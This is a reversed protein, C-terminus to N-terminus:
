RVSSPLRQVRDRLRRLTAAAEEPDFNDGLDLVAAALFDEIVVAHSTDTLLGIFRSNRSFAFDGRSASFDAFLQGLAPRDMKLFRNTETLRRFETSGFNSEDEKVLVAEEWREPSRALEFTELGANEVTQEPLPLFLIRPDSNLFGVQRVPVTKDGLRVELEVAEIGGPNGSLSFPTNAAHAVLYTGDDGSVLISTSEYNKRTPRGLFGKEETTFRLRARNNQFRTFIESMTRPRSDEIEQKLSESTRAIADMDQDLRTFGEGIRTVGRGLETVGESLRDARAFAQEKEAQLREKERGEEELRRNLQERETRAEALERNLKEREAAMRKAEERAKRLAKEREALMQEREQLEEETQSLQERSRTATERLEGLDRALDAREATARQLEGRTAEVEEALKRRKAEIRAKEEALQEKEEETTATTNELQEAKEETRSLQDRTKRLASERQALREERRRLKERAEELNESLESRSELEDRLSEELLAMLEEQATEGESATAQEEETQTAGDAQRAEEPTDFRAVALMSLLLFDSIILLLTKNM